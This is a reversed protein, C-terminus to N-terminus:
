LGLLFLSIMLVMSGICLGIALIVNMFIKKYNKRNEIPCYDSYYISRCIRYRIYKFLQKM